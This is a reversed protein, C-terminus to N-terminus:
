EPRCLQDLERTLISINLISHFFSDRGDAEIWKLHNQLVPMTMLEYGRTPHNDDPGDPLLIYQLYLWLDDASGRVKEPTIDVERLDQIAEAIRLPPWNAEVMRLAIHCEWLHLYRYSFRKGKGVKEVNPVGLDRLVRLRARFAKMGDDQVFHLGALMTELEGLEM